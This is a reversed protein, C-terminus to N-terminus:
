LLICGSTLTGSEGVAAEPTLSSHLARGVEAEKPWVLFRGKTLSQPQLWHGWGQGSRLPATSRLSDGRKESQQSSSGGVLSPPPSGRAPDPGPEARRVLEPVKPFAKGGRNETDQAKKIEQSWAKATSNGEGPVSKGGKKM